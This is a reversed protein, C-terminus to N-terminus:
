DEEPLNEYRGDVYPPYCIEYFVLPELATWQMIEGIQIEHEKTGSKNPFVLEEHAGDSHIIMLRAKGSIHGEITKDGKLVKQLPTKHGKAVRVIALDKAPDDPFTYVDCEVGEKVQQTEVFTVDWNKNDFFFTDLRQM